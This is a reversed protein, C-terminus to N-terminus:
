PMKLERGAEYHKSSTAQSRRAMLRGNMLALVCRLSVEPCLHYPHLFTLVPTPVLRRLVQTRPRGDRGPVLRVPGSVVLRGDRLAVSLLILGSCRFAGPYDRGGTILPGAGLSRVGSPGYRLLVSKLLLSRLPLSRLPLAARFCVLRLV